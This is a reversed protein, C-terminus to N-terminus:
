LGLLKRFAKADNNTKVQKKYDEFAQYEENDFIVTIPYKMTFGQESLDVKEIPNALYDSVGFDYFDFGDLTDMEIQLIDKDLGTLLNTANHAICYARREEDTLHDLKICPVVDKIVKNDFKVIVGETYLEKLAYYRGHGEVIENNWIGIPDNFGFAKISNKIKQIQGFNHIKANNSYEQLESIHILEIQM